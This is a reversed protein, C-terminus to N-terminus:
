IRVSESFYGKGIVRGPGNQWYFIFQCWKCLLLLLNVVRELDMTLLASQAQHKANGAGAFRDDFLGELAERFVLVQDGGHASGQVGVGVGNFDQAVGAADLEVAGGELAFAAEDLL